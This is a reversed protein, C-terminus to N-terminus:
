FRFLGLFFGSEFSLHSISLFNKFWKEERKFMEHDSRYKEGAM